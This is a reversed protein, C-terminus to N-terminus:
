KSQCRIKAGRFTNQKPKGQNDTKIQNESLAGAEWMRTDKALRARRQLKQFNISKLLLDQFDSTLLIPEETSKFNFLFMYVLFVDQCAGLSCAEIM